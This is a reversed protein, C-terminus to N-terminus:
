DITYIITILILFFRAENCKKGRLGTCFQLNSRFAGTISRIKANQRKAYISYFSACGVLAGMGDIPTDKPTMMRIPQRRWWVCYHMIPKGM